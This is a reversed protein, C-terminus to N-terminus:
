CIWGKWWNKFKLIYKLKRRDVGVKYVRKRREKEGYHYERRQKPIKNVSFPNICIGNENRAIIKWKRM